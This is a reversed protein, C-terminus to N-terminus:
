TDEGILCMGNELIFFLSTGRSISGQPRFTSDKEYETEDAGEVVINQIWHM